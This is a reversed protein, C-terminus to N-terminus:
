KVEGYEHADVAKIVKKIEKEIDEGTTVITHVQKEGDTVTLKIGRGQQETDWDYKRILPSAVERVEAETM